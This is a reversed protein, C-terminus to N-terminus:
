AQLATYRSAIQAGRARRCRSGPRRRSRPEPSGQEAGRRARAIRFLRDFARLVRRGGRFRGGDAEREGGVRADGVRPVRVGDAPGACQLRAEVREQRRRAGVAECARPLGPERRTHRVLLRLYEPEVVPGDIVDLHADVGPRDVFTVDIAGTLAALKADDVVRVRVGLERRGQEGGQVGLLAFVLMLVPYWTISNRSHPVSVRASPGPSRGYM